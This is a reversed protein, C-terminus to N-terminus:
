AMLGFGNLWSGSFRAENLIAWAAPGLSRILEGKALAINEQNGLLEVHASGVNTVVGIDPVAMRTLSEIHGLGRMGMEVVLNQTSEDARLITLPLGVETNFSGEAWM